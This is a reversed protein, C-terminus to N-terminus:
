RSEGRLYGRLGDRGDIANIVKLDVMEARGSGGGSGELGLLLPLGGGTRVAGDRRKEGEGSAQASGGSLKKKVVVEDGDGSRWVAV